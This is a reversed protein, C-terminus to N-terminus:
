SKGEPKLIIKGNDRVIKLNFYAAMAEAFGNSDGATFAGSVRLGTMHAGAAGAASAEIQTKSYANMRVIAEGLSVNDFVIQGDRWALARNINVAKLLEPPTNDQLVLLQNPAMEIPQAQAPDSVAVRGEHLVVTMGHAAREVSFATGLAVVNRADVEVKFPRNKDKAVKFFARGSMLQLRRQGPSYAVKLTTLADLKVQSGDALQIDRQEGIGTAFTESKGGSRTWWLFGVGVAAIGAAAAALFQRRGPSALPRKEPPARDLASKQLEMLRPEAENGQLADMLAEADNFLSLHTEDAALWDAFAKLDEDSDESDRLRLVWAAAQECAETEKDFVTLPWGQSDNTRGDGSSM